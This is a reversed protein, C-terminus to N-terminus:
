WTSAETRAALWGAPTRAFDVALQLRWATRGGYVTADTLIKGVLRGRDGELQLSTEREQATHYVFQGERMEALWEEKPQVYGTMHTLTFGEALLEGLAETDGQVMAELQARWNALVEARAQQQPAQM